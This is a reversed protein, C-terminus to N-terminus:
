WRQFAVYTAGSSSDDSSSSAHHRRKKKKKKAGGRDKGRALKQDRERDLQRRYEEMATDQDATGDMRAQNAKKYTEWDPRAADNFRDRITAGAGMATLAAEVRQKQQQDDPM